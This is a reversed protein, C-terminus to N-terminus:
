NYISYYNLSEVNRKLENSSSTLKVAHSRPVYGQLVQLQSNLEDRKSNCHCEYEDQSNEDNNMNEYVLSFDEPRSYRKRASQCNCQDTNKSRKYLRVFLWEDSNSDSRRSTSEDVLYVLDNKHVTLDQKYKAQYNDVIRYLSVCTNQYQAANSSALIQQQQRRKENSRSTSNSSNYTMLIDYHNMSKAENRLPSITTISSCTSLDDNLNCYPNTSSEESMWEDSQQQKFNALNEYESEEREEELMTLTKLRSSFQDDDVAVSVKRNRSGSKALQNIKSANLLRLRRASRMNSLSKKDRRLLNHGNNVRRTAPKKLNDISVYTHEISKTSQQKIQQRHTCADSQTAFPECCKRPIFGKAESSTKVYVWKNDITYLANIPTGKRVALKNASNLSPRYSRVVLLPINAFYNENLNSKVYNIHAQKLKKKLENCQNAKHLCYKCNNSAVSRQRDTEPEYYCELGSDANASSISSTSSSSTTSKAGVGNGGFELTKRVKSARNEVLLSNMDVVLKKKSTSSAGKLRVVSTETKRNPTTGFLQLLNKLQM